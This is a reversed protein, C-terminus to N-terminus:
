VKGTGLASALALSLYKTEPSDARSPLVVPVTPGMLISSLIAHAFLTITKHFANGAEINPFVLANAMGAIPSPIGKLKMSEPSCSTKVDLPGDVICPGFEGQEAMKVIEPYGGTYPFHREDVEESCHILSVKPEDIGLARCLQIVYKVQDIRQEQTPFPIVAADTYILLHNHGPIQACGVHTLLRGQPLLGGNYRLIAKLLVESPILGKMLMDVEGNQALTVAREAASQLNDDEIMVPEIFGDAAARKVAEITSPDRPSVVAVRRCINQARLLNKLEDFNKM